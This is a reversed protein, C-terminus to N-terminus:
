SACSPRTSRTSGTRSSASARRSTRRSPRACRSPTSRSGSSRSSSSTSSTSSTAKRWTAGRRSRACCACRRARHTPTTLPPDGQRHARAPPPRRAPPTRAHPRAATRAKGCALSQLTLKLEKGDIGTAKLLDAYAIGDADNFLLLVTTQLLSVSLEKRGLPFNAKLTCHGLYPHWQLRRGSHKSTYYSSFGEQLAGMEAPLNVEAPPYTPWYGQTLVSVSLEVDSQMERHQSSERFSAMIDRSLEIDKFMGELKSTFGSGCEARLKSIMSKEADISASKGLLLRKSLDKKYFAEFLDKGDVYRFLTMTKDLVTELEEETTGKNGVRLKSDIFRAVLEAPRNQRVNIFQEFAEKLSHGFQENACFAVGLIRDLKEKFELLEQVLSRDREPDSVMAAGVRKIYASFALRLRPLADVLAYLSYMRTLDEVRGESMLAAFGKDLMADIHAALLNHMAAHLLPKRTSLHLYHTVRAEEQSLRTRVHALYTPVDSSGLREASEAAYFANTTQLFPAEFQDTYMGLDHYMRLLAHPLSREVQDGAREAQILGLLGDTVKRSVEERSALHARFISLGM